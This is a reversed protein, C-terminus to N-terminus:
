PAMGLNGTMDTTWAGNRAPDSGGASKPVLGAPFWDTRYKAATVELLPAALPGTRGFNAKTVTLQVAGEDAEGDPNARTATICLRAADYWGASGSIQGPHSAASQRGEKSPHAVLLVSTRGEIRQKLATVFRRATVLDGPHSEVASAVPDIVVLTPCDTLLDAELLRMAPQPGGPSHRGAYEPGAWLPGGDDGCVSVRGLAENSCGWRKATAHLRNLTLSFHDEMSWVVVRGPAVWLGLDALGCGGPDGSAVALAIQLSLASKGLGGEGTLFGVNGAPLLCRGSELPLAPDPPPDGREVRWLVPPGIPPPVESGRFKRPALKERAVALVDLGDGGEDWVGLVAEGASVATDSEDRLLKDAIGMAVDPLEKVAERVAAEALEAKADALEAAGAWDGDLEALVAAAAAAEKALDALDRLGAVSRCALDLLPWSEAAALPGAIWGADDSSVDRPDRGSEGGLWLCLREVCVLCVCRCWEPCDDSGPCECEGSGRGGLVPRGASDRGVGGGSEGGGSEGGGSERSHTECRDSGPVPSFICQRGTTRLITACQGFRDICEGIHAHLRQFEPSDVDVDAGAGEFREALPEGSTGAPDSHLSM